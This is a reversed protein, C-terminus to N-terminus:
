SREGFGLGRMWAAYDRFFGPLEAVLVRAADYIEAARADPYEHQLENRRDHVDALKERRTESIVDEASLRRLISLASGTSDRGALDLGLRALEIVYNDLIEFPRELPYANRTLAGAERTRLASEYDARAIQDLALVLARYHSHADALRVRIDRPLSRAM